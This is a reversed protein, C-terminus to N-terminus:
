EQKLIKFKSTTTTKPQGESAVQDAYANIEGLAARLNEPSQTSSNILDQFHKMIYEGGRAGVHMRMLLTQLLGMNTRLSTFAPDSLGVKGAKFERWRSAAPGLGQENQDVEGLIKNVFYKVNPAAEIMTKTSNTLSAASGKPQGKAGTPIFQTQGTKKNTVVVGMQGADNLQPASVNSESLNIKQQAQNLATQKQEVGKMQPTVFPSPAVVTKGNKTTAIAPNGSPDFGFMPQTKFETTGQPTFQSGHLSGYTTGAPVEKFQGQSLGQLALLENLGMPQGTSSMYHQLAQIMEPSGYEVPQRQTTPVGQIQM